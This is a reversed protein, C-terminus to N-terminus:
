IGNPVTRTLLREYLDYFQQGIIKYQYLAAADEAIKLRDFRDYDDIMKLMAELLENENESQVLFGNIANVAEPIGGVNTAIVPLGCSLAEIITCPFNEIRSFMVLAHAGQMEMAVRANPIVGLWEVFDNVGHSSAYHKLEKTHWGAFKCKWGRRKHRLRALVRIMGKVNKNHDMTSAHFFCFEAPAPRPKFFFQRSVANRITICDPLQFIKKLLSGHDNSVTTVTMANRFVLSTAKRFFLGRRFFNDTKVQYYSSSHESVIYPIKWRRKIWQAILGSKMPIHVHVLDPSGSKKFHKQIFRAYTSYYKLNYIIKDLVAIGTKKFPFYIIYEKLNGAGKIEVRKRPVEVEIGRQVIHVVTIQVYESVAQAHRQIFDGEFPSFYNPYWSALWLIKM